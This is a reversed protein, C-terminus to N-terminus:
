DRYPYFPRGVTLASVPRERILVELGTGPQYDGKELLAMAIGKQMLPSYLGSTVCGVDRGDKLVRYGERPIGRGTIELCVTTRTPSKKLELLADRGCYAEDSSVLWGLGAEVPSIEDSLEHGYLSYSAEIRLSDRAGLGCPMLGLPRGIRLIEDWLECVDEEDVYLEYGKEGTYGTKSVLINQGNWGTEAFEFRGLKVAPDNDGLLAALIEGSRPGQLDLKATDDSINTIEVGPAINVALATYDKIINAANVVIMYKEESFMYIFIDDVTGGNENCICSYMARGPVLRDLRTPIVRKLLVKSKAGEVIFEGMHSIDFLGAANRVAMHEEIISTYMVPLEWGAFDVMSGGAHIHRDYLPTRLSM